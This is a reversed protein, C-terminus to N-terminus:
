KGDHAREWKAIVKTTALTGMLKDDPYMDALEDLITTTQNTDRVAPTLAILEVIVFGPRFEVGVIGSFDQNLDKWLLLQRQDSEQYWQLEAQLRDIKKLTPVFSLLGMAVKEYDTRYKLLV